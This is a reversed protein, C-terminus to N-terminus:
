IPVPSPGALLELARIFAKAWPWRAPARLVRRGSRNVLRGPMSIFRTRLSSGVVMTKAPTIEGLYSVHRILNHALAAHALWAGNAFFKGSPIHALGANEKLDRISLEVRARERHFADLEAASGELDTVFAFHRWHPFLEAQAGTLRTRRVILRRAKYTAEAVQAEGGETYDIPTWAQEPIEAIIREAGKANAHIAMTFSARLRGLEVLTAEAQYGSDFRLIVQQSVGLRGLRAMLEALHRRVGRQTNASGKRMRIGLIEGTEARVAVLPHYGLKKTYGYAAGGKHYGSVETITSDVDIVLPRDGQPALGLKWAGEIEAEIVADLQRLHGFTFSRLYTGVTSPAAVRFPLISENAGARLVDVHDIHSAGAVMAHVLSLSKYAPNAGGVRNYLRVKDSIIGALGIRACFSGVLALGANAVLNEDDFAVEVARQGLYFRSM